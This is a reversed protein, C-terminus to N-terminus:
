LQETSYDHNSGSFHSTLVISFRLIYQLHFSKISCHSWCKQEYIKTEGNQERVQIYLDTIKNYTLKEEGIIVAQFIDNLM